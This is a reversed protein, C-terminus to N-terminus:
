YFICIKCVTCAVFKSASDDCKAMIFKVAVVFTHKSM